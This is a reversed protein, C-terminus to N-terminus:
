NDFAHERFLDFPFSPLADTPTDVTEVGDVYSYLITFEYAAPDSFEEILEEARRLAALNAYRRQALINRKNRDTYQLEASAGDEMYYYRTAPVTMTKDNVFGLTACQMRVCHIETGDADQRTYVNEEMFLFGYSKGDRVAIVQINKQGDAPLGLRLALVPEASDTDTPVIFFELGKPGAATMDPLSVYSTTDDASTLPSPPNKTFFLGGSM